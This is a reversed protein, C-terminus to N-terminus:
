HLVHDFSGDFFLVTWDKRKDAKIASRALRESFRPRETVGVVSIAPSLGDGSLEPFYEPNFYGMWCTGLGLETARLILTELLYGYSHLATPSRSITGVIFYRPNRQLGYDGLKVPEGKKFPREVVHFTATEGFPATPPSACAEELRQLLDPPIPDPSYTRVSRRARIAQSPPGELEM